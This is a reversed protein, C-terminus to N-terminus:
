YLLYYPPPPLLLFSALSYGHSFIVTFLYEVERPSMFLKSIERLSDDPDLYNYLEGHIPAFEEDQIANHAWPFKRCGQREFDDASDWVQELVNKGSEDKAVKYITIGRGGISVLRKIIPAQPNSYDIMESGVTFRMSKACLPTEFNDTSCDSNFFRSASNIVSNPDFVDSDIATMNEFGLFFGQFIDEGKVKEGFDGYELDDGENATVIYDIGDITFSTIGDPSRTSYM